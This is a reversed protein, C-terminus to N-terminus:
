VIWRRRAMQLNLVFIGVCIARRSDPGFFVADHQCESDIRADCRRRLDLAPCLINTKSFDGIEEYPLLTGAVEFPKSLCETATDENVETEKQSRM